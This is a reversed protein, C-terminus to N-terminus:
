EVLISGKMSKAHPTCHYPYVGPTDFTVSYSQGMTLDKSNQSLYYTHAPHVDTNITHIVSDKNVWTVRTNRSILISKPNFAINQLKIMVEKKGRMDEFESRKSRDIAFQFSGNHCSGDAWCANYAVTYIGDPAQPDMNRRMSLRNADTVTDGRGYEMGDKTIAISSGQALDFNFDIVVNVPVAALVSRHEPANSQYHAAKKPASFIVQSGAKAKENQPQTQPQSTPSVETKRSLVIVGILVIVMLPIAM